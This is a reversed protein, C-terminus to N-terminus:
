LLATGETRRMFHSKNNCKRALQWNDTAHRMGTAGTHQRRYRSCLNNKPVTAVAVPPLPGTIM